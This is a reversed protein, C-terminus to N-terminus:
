FMDNVWIPTREGVYAGQINFDFFDLADEETMGDRTMLIDICAKKSYVLKMPEAECVGILAEDLGDAKLFEDDLYTNVVRDIMTYKTGIETINTEAQILRVQENVVIADILNRAELIAHAEASSSDLWGLARDLLESAKDLQEKM